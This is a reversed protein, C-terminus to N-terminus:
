IRKTDSAPESQTEIVSSGSAYEVNGWLQTHPTGWTCPVPSFVRPQGGPAEVGTTYLGGAEPM